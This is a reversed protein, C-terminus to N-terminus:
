LSPYLPLRIGFGYRFLYSFLLSLVVALLIKKWLTKRSAEQPDLLLFMTTLFVIGVLIAGVTKLLLIGALTVAICILLGSYSGSDEQESDPQRLGSILVFVGIIAMFLIFIRPYTTASIVSLDGSTTQQIDFSGYFFVAALLLYFLGPMAKQLRRM